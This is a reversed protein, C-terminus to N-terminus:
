ATKSPKGRKDGPGRRVVRRNLARHWFKSALGDGAVKRLDRKHLVAPPGDLPTGDARKLDYSEGTWDIMRSEAIAVYDKYDAPDLRVHALMQQILRGSDTAAPAVLRPKPKAKAGKKPRENM